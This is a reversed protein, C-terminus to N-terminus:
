SEVGEELKQHRIITKNSVGGCSVLMIATAAVLLIAKIKNM